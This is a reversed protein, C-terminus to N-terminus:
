NDEAKDVMRKVFDDTKLDRASSRSKRAHRLRKAIEGLAIMDDIQDSTHDYLENKLKDVLNWAETSLSDCLERVTMEEM